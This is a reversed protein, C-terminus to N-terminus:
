IEIHLRVGIVSVPGKRDKNYGPNIIFQYDGSLFIFSNCKVRYFTEIIEECRYNLKGDGIIFGMGGSELYKKHQSSLGNISLAVGFADSERKWKIGSVNIGLQFNRDIETFAWTASQGDNFNFRSFLGCSNTLAQSYNLALGYKVGEYIKWQNNGTIINYRTSDAIKLDEIAKNYIPAHSSTVFGTIKLSAPQHHILFKREFEITESNGKGINPDLKLGNAQLPVKVAACRLNWQPHLWQVVLGETYGRLDAPFDWSGSSMLSWNLFQSRADHSYDNGDFFDSIGFKGIQIVLRNSAVKGKLQNQGDSQDIYSCKGIAFEQQLYARAIFLTPKPNGVRYVEGNTAGAIGLVNSIGQGGSVEPNFYFAAGKWLKRGLFLTNTLSYAENHNTDLSRLGSYKAHFGSQSQYVVTSQFHTTWKSISDTTQSFGTISSM